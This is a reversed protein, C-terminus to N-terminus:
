EGSGPESFKLTRIRTEDDNVMMNTVQPWVTNAMEFPWNLIGSEVARKIGDVIRRSNESIINGVRIAESLVEDRNPCIRSVLGVELARRADIPEGTLTMDLVVATPVGARRLMLPMRTGRARAVQPAGFQANATCIRLDCALAFYLGAGLCYGNVAAIVPKGTKFQDPHGKHGTAGDYQLHDQGARYAEARAKLDDGSCFSKDGEGIVVAVRWKDRSAFEQWFEFLEARLTTDLANLRGPNSLTAIVVAGHEQIQLESMM